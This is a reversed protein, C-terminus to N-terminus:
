SDPVFKAAIRRMNLNETLMEQSVSVLPTQSSMSQVAVTKTTSNEIKELMKHPKAPAQDGQVNTVKLQCEALRSVHVANL